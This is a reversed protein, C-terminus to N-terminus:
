PNYKAAQLGLASLGAITFAASTALGPGVFPAVLFGCQYGIYLSAGANFIDTDGPTQNANTDLAYQDFSTRNINNYMRQIMADYDIHYTGHSAPLKPSKAQKLFLQQEKTGNKKEDACYSPLAIAFVLCTIIKYITKM